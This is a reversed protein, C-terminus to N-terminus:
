VTMDYMSIRALAKKQALSGPFFASPVSHFNDWACWVGILVYPYCIYRGVAAQKSVETAPSCGLCCSARGPPCARPPSPATLAMELIPENGEEFDLPFSCHNSCLGQSATM